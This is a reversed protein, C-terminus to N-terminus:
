RLSPSWQMCRTRARRDPLFVSRPQQVDDDPGRAATAGMGRGAAPCFRSRRCDSGGCIAPRARPRHEHPSQRDVVFHREPASDGYEHRNTGRALAAPGASALRRGDGHRSRHHAREDTGRLVHSRHRRFYDRGSRFQSSPGQRGATRRPCNPNRDIATHSSMNQPQPNCDRNSQRNASRRQELASRQTEHRGAGRRCVSDGHLALCIILLYPVWRKEVTIHMFNKAVLFAKVVAVGFAAVLVVPRISSMSGVVSVILLAVLIAWIKVYNPHHVHSETTM